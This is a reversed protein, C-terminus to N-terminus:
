LDCYIYDLIFYLESLKYTKDPENDFNFSQVVTDTHLETITTGCVVPDHYLGERPHPTKYVRLGELDTSIFLFGLHRNDKVTYVAMVEIPTM